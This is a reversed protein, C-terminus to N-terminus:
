TCKSSKKQLIYFVLGGSFYLFVDITDATYRPHFKPLWYEFIVSYFLSIYLVQFITFTIKISGNIKRILKLCFFLVIPVILFDNVYFRVISPLLVGLKECSYISLGIIISVFVYYTLMKKM